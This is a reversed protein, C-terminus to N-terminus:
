EATKKPPTPKELANFGKTFGQLSIPKPFPVAKRGNHIIVKAQNGKKFQNLLDDQLPLGAICGIELCREYPFQIVKNEDIKLGMGPPLLFGLPVTFMVAPRSNEPLYGVAVQLMPKDEEDVLTQFIYCRKEDIGPLKDCGVKWDKFQQGEEIAYGPQMSTVLVLLPSLWTLLRITAPFHIM